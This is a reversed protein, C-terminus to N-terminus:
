PLTKSSLLAHIINQCMCLLKRKMCRNSRTHIGYAKIEKAIKGSRPESLVLWYGPGRDTFNRGSKKLIPNTIRM